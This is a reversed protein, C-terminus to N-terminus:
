LKNFSTSSILGDQQVHVFYQGRPLQIVPVSIHNKGKYVKEQRQLVAKGMATFIIITANNDKEATVTLRIENNAPNPYVTMTARRSYNVSPTVVLTDTIHKICGTNTVIFLSIIHVGTDRILYQQPNGGSANISDMTSSTYISWRQRTIPQDSSPSLVLLNGDERSVNMAITCNDDNNGAISVVQSVTDFCYTLSDTARMTVPYNGPAPFRYQDGQAGGAIRYNDSFWAYKLSTDNTIFSIAAMDYPSFTYTFSIGLDCKQYTRITDSYTSACGAATEIDMTIIHPQSSPVFIYEFDSGYNDSVVTLGDVKWTTKIIGSIDGYVSQRFSFHNPDPHDSQVSFYSICAPTYDINISAFVSDICNSVTDHITHQVTYIGPAYYHTEHTKAGTNGDGFAWSHIKGSSSDAPHFTVIGENIQYTFGAHCQASANYPLCVLLSLIIVPARM